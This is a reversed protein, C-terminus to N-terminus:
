SMMITIDHHHPTPFPERSKTSRTDFEPACSLPIDRRRDQASGLRTLGFRTSGFRTADMYFTDVTCVHVLSSM